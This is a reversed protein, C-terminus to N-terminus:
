GATVCGAAVVCKQELLQMRVTHKLLCCAPDSVLWCEGLSVITGGAADSDLEYGEAPLLRGAAASDPLWAEGLLWVGAAM